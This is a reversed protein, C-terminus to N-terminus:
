QTSRARLIVRPATLLVRTAVWHQQKETQTLAADTSGTCDLCPTAALAARWSHSMVLGYGEHARRGQCQWVFWPRLAPAIGRLCSTAQM